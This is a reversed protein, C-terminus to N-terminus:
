PTGVSPTLSTREDLRTEMWVAFALGILALNQALHMGTGKGLTLTFWCGCVAGPKFVYNVALAVTFALLMATALLAAPGRYAPLLLAAGLLLEVLIVTPALYAASGPIVIVYSALATVFGSYHFVKDIATLIFLVGLFLTPISKLYSM